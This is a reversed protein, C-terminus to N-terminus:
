PLALQKRFGLEDWVIRYGSIKGDRFQMLDVEDVVFTRGSGAVGQYEGNHTGSMRVHVAAADGEAIINVLEYRLDPFASVYYALVAKLADRSLGAEGPPLRFDDTLIADLRAFDRRNVADVFTSILTKHEAAPM